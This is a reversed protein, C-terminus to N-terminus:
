PVDQPLLGRLPRLAQATRALETLMAHAATDMPENSHLVGDDLHQFVFPIHVAEVLPIMKLSSLVLKLMQVARTGASVGGYSVFGVPKHQWESHLYDIANKLPANFGYNYEPTVFVFADARAVTKSWRKTHEHMYDAHRPHKPEDMFPLNVEALDVVELDCGGHIRAQSTFWEAVPLGVRGPRTSCIFIELHPKAAM